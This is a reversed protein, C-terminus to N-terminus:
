KSNNIIFQDAAAEFEEPTEKGQALKQQEDVINTLTASDLKDDWSVWADTANEFLPQLDYFLQDLGEPMEDNFPSFVQADNYCGDSYHNCMYEFFEKMTDDYTKANFATGFGGHIPVNTEMNEQGDVDPVAFFGLQGNKYMESAQTIQGSGSYWMAGNGGFFLDTAATYDTSLFGGQFYGETGLTYLLDAGEKAAANESFTAKQDIYDMIFQDKTMRWPAFSLYRMLQWNEKGAVILPIEGNDKLTKCTDLFENWTTPAELNYKEFIDKRYFFFECNLAEPFLYVNGDDKDKFFDYVAANMDDKKGVRELEDGINVIGGIDKAAASLAGNACGYIDPLTNSNIYLQLKTVYDADGSILEFEPPELGKEESFDTLLKKMIIYKASTESARMLITIKKREGNSGSETQSANGGASSGSAGNGCGTLLTSMTMVGALLLAGLKKMKM